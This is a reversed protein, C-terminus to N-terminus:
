AVRRFEMSQWNYHYRFTVPNRKPRYISPALIIASDRGRLQLREATVEVRDSIKDDVMWLLSERSYIPALSLVEAVDKSRSLLWLRSGWKDGPVDPIADGWYGPEDTMGEPLEDGPQRPANAFLSWLVASELGEDVQLDNDEVGCDASLTQPNFILAIDSM